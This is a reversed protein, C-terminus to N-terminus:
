KPIVTLYVPIDVVPPTGMAFLMNNSVIIGADKFAAYAEADGTGTRRYEVQITCDKTQYIKSFAQYMGVMYNWNTMLITEETVYVKKQHHLTWSEATVVTTKANGSNAFIVIAETDAVPMVNKLWVRLVNNEVAEVKFNGSDFTGNVVLVIDSTPTVGAFSFDKYLSYPANDGKTWCGLIDKAGIISGSALNMINSQDSANTGGSEDTDAALFDLPINGDPFDNSFTRYNYNPISEVSTPGNSYLLNDNNDVIGDGNIDGAFRGAPLTISGIGSKGDWAAKEAAQAVVASNAAENAKTSAVAASAVAIEKSDEASAAAEVAAKANTEVDEAAEVVYKFAASDRIEEEVYDEPKPRAIVPIAIEKVTTESNEDTIVVYGTLDREQQLAPAPITVQNDIVYARLGGKMFRNGFDVPTGDEIEADTVKIIQGVDWQHVPRTVVRDAPLLEIEIINTIM